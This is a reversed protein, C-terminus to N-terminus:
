KLKNCNRIDHKKLVENIEESKRCKEDFIVNFIDYKEEITSYVIAINKKKVLNKVFNLYIPHYENENSPNSADAQSPWRTPNSLDEGIIASLFLYHSYLMVKNKDDKIKKIIEKLIEIERVPNKSYNKTIWKLGKLRADIELSDIAINLDVKELNLMKRNENFRYHYKATTFITTLILLIGLFSHIKKNKLYSVHTLGAVLPILFFIYIFNMTLIQHYIFSFSILILILNILFKDKEVKVIKKKLQFFINMLVFLLVFYIFKFDNLVSSTNFKYNEIRAEGITKPFSIYQFIFNEFSINNIYLFIIFMSSCLLSSLIFYKIFFIKKYLFVYFTLIILYSLLLYAAPTQKSFFAIFFLIPIVVWYFNKKKKILILFLLIAGLSFFSSFHDPFPVGMSPNALISFSLCYFLNTKRPLKYERLVNYFLLTILINVLSGSLIYSKWSVGFIYFLSAQFFDIFPGSVTWYDVFPISGHLVRYGTDFYAFTDQSLVGISGYIYNIIFAFIVLICNDIVYKRSEDKIM